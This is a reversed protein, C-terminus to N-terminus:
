SHHNRIIWPILDPLVAMDNFVTVKEPIAQENGNSTRYWLVKMGAALGAKIGANSDEIVICQAPLFNLEKAAYLFLDPFPKGRPVQSASYLHDFYKRLGTVELSLAIKDPESGSAVCKPYRLGALATEIHPIPQLTNSIEERILNSYTETFSPSVKKKLASEVHAICDRTSIGYFHKGSYAEDVHIGENRLCQLFIRSALPESDVLVGDCDFILLSKNSREM